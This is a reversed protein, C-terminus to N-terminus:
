RAAPSGGPRTPHAAAADGWSHWRELEVLATVCTLHRKPYPQGTYRWSLGDLDALTPDDRFEAVRGLLSLHDYWSDGLITLSVRPDNRLNRARPGSAVMNVLIRGDEWAFWTPTTSPAGDPRVTGIVAPRPVSAFQELELPLPAKPM